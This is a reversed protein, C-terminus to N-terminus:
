QFACSLRVHLRQSFRVAFSPFPTLHGHSLFVLIPRVCCLGCHRRGGHRSGSCKSHLYVWHCLLDSSFVLSNIYISTSVPIRVFVSIPTHERPFTLWRPLSLSGWLSQWDFNRGIPRTRICTIIDLCLPHLAAPSLTFSRLVESRRCRAHLTPRNASVSLRRPWRYARSSRISESLVRLSASIAARRTRILATSTAQSVSRSSYDVIAGSSM